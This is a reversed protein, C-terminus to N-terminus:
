RCTFIFTGVAAQCSTGGPCGADPPADPSCLQECLTGGDGTCVLGVRCVIQPIRGNGGCPMGPGAAGGWRCFGYPSGNLSGPAPVCTGDGADESNCPGDLAGDLPGGDTLAAGCLQKACHGGQCTADAAEVCDATTACDEECVPGADQIARLAPDIVCHASCACDQDATCPYYQLQSGAGRAGGDALPCLAPGADAGRGM